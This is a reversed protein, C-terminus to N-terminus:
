RTVRPPRRKCQNNCEDNDVRNGDDCQEYDSQVVGDGCRDGLKCGKFCEGYGGDNVGDDCREGENAQVVADGCRPGIKCLPGCEGYGGDNVGDDCQEGLDKQVKKDGCSAGLRCTDSCNDQGDCQEGWETQTVGDGCRPGRGCEPTCSGYANDNIGDDCTEGEDEDVVGDGCRPAYACISTCGGYQGNNDEGDDCEEVSQVVGDGCRPGWQCEAACMGYGGANLGDDCEEGLNTQTIADGCTGILRCTDTCNDGTEPDEPDCQEGWDEQVTGDGCREGWVCGPACEGYGGDNVHDDCAEEPKTVKGDGCFLEVQCFASCQDYGGDNKGPGEGEDCGEYEADVHGDGCRPGYSCDSECRGYGGANIRDDCEEGEDVIGNGCKIRCTNTCNAGTEEDEPDCQEGWQEDVNGDGCRPGWTCDVDCRNYSGPNIGDDCEEFLANVDGDGCYEDIQCNAGCEEYGGDNVGDDCQEFPTDLNDDGCTPGNQCSATCGAYSGDNIGDDCTEGMDVTGNGCKLRCDSACLSGTQPDLPDCEEGWESQVTGDGCDPGDQCDATCSGYSGDNAGDDCDEGGQELGDGCFGGITCSTTCGDYGDATNGNGHSADGLDCEESGNITGDGCNPPTECGPACANVGTEGYGSLNTGNDCAEGDSTTSDGCYPGLECSTTCRNYQPSATNVILDEPDPDVEIGVTGDDCEEDPTVFGDGCVPSCFSRPALFGTLTLQYNSEVPNREAQFVVIEYVGGKTIQFRDDTNDTVEGGARSCAAPATGSYTGESTPTTCTSDEDGLVVRGYVTTHIGGIDVALRGNVFVWVDDDGFFTLTEGGQYQFFYRLESTFHWNKNSGSTVYGFGRMAVTPSSQSGLPYFVNGSASYRYDGATEPDGQGTLKGLTLTDATAQPTPATACVGGGTTCPGPNPAILIPVNTAGNGDKESTPDNLASANTDRYWLKFANQHYTANLNDGTADITQYVNETGGVYTPKGDVDLRGCSTYNAASCLAGVIGFDAGTSPYSGGRMHPHGGLNNNSAKFDRYTVKFNVSDPYQVSETCSYGEEVECESSCGDGDSDNGDDCDEGATILGDGCTLQAVPEYYGGVLTRTFTPENQCTPGCGDGAIENGDDCGEDGEEVGNGCDSLACVSPVDNSANTCGYGEERSCDASCGDNDDQDGDDCSELGRKIGDGCIARCDFGGRPCLFGEEVASCDAACGDDDDTNGDDCAEGANVIGDGCVLQVCNNGNSDCTWNPTFTCSASCGATTVGGQDCQEGPDRTGDGCRPKPECPDGPTPCQYDDDLQCLHCGDAPNNDNGDDCEEFLPANRSVKSDGCWFLQTCTNNVCVYGPTKSKCDGECGDGSQTDGDDCYEGPQKAGDGCEIISTCPQGVTNCLWYASDVTCVGSCGDNWIVADNRKIDGDDCDEDDQQIGDGCYEPISCVSNPPATCVYGEELQCTSSCGDDSDADGDDCEETGTIQGDGCVNLLTCPQGITLCLYDPDQVCSNNCGDNPNTADSDGDDCEEGPELIGNGCDITSVCAMGEEACDYYAELRCIGSCGDNWVVTDDRKVDGDDCQEGAQKVGDGCYEVKSCPQGPTPCTYDPELQCAESCGDLSTKNDDDCQELGAVKGDGCDVIKVCLEGQTCVYNPDQQCLDNCGDDPDLNNDDCTEGPDKLGNGCVITSVCGSEDCNWYPEETCFASCGDGPELAGDDCEEGEDLAGNGCKKAPSCLQGPRRCSFGEEIKCDSSCGDDDENNGDDCEDSGNVRSDGCAYLRVCPEGPTPCYFAPDQNICDSSCGDDDENNADDCFEGPDVKGDGCAITSTCPEGPVKCESYPEEQCQGNCGDGPLSNGDDCEEGVDVVADGCAPGADGWDAPETCDDCNGNGTTAGADDGGVGIFTEDNGGTSVSGGDGTGDGTPVDDPNPQSNVQPSSSCASLIAMCVSLLTLYSPKALARNM